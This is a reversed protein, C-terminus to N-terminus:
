WKHVNQLYGAGHVFIVAAGNAQPTKPRYLRAYVDIGDRSPQQLNNILILNWDATWSTCSAYVMSFATREDRSFSPMMDVDDSVFHNYFRQDAETEGAEFVEFDYFAEFLAVLDDYGVHFGITSHIFHTNNISKKIPQNFYL